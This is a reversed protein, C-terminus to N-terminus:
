KFQFFSISKWISEIIKNKSEVSTKVTSFSTVCFKRRQRLCQGFMQVSKPRRHCISSNRRPKKATTRITPCSSSSQHRRIEVFNKKPHFKVKPKDFSTSAYRFRDSQKILKIKLNVVFRLSNTTVSRFM